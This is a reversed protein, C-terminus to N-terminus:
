PKRRRRTQKQPGDFRDWVLNIPPLCNLVEQRQMTKLIEQQEAESLLAFHKLLAEEQKQEADHLMGGEHLADARRVILDRFDEEGIEARIWAILLDLWASRSLQFANAIKRLTSLKVSQGKALYSFVNRSVGCRKAMQEQTLDGQLRSIKESLHSM